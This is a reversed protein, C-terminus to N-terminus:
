DAQQLAPPLKFESHLHRLSTSMKRDVNAAVVQERTRKGSVKRSLKTLRPLVNEIRDERVAVWDGITPLGTPSAEHSLRGSVSTDSEGHETVVRQFAGRSVIVRAPELEPDLGGLARAFFQSFGFDDLPLRVGEFFLPIDRGNREDTPTKRSSKWYHGSRLKLDSNRAEREGSRVWAAKKSPLFSKM